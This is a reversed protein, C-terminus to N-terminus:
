KAEARELNTRVLEDYHEQIVGNDIPHYFGHVDKTKTWPTNDQHTIQSLKFGSFTRYKEWVVDLLAKEHATLNTAAVVELDDADGSPVTVSIPESVAGAGYKRLAQYLEPYVPGYPWAAPQTGILPAKLLSLGWGHAIYPLKQLQMNTLARGEANARQLFENAIAKVNHNPM